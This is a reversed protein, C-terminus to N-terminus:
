QFKPHREIYDGVSTVKFRGDYLLTANYSDGTNLYDVYIKNPDYDGPESFSEVGYTEAIENLAAMICMVKSPPNYHCKKSDIVSKYTTYLDTTLVLKAEKAREGFVLELTKISPTNM